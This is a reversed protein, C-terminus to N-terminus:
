EQDWISRWVHHTTPGSGGCDKGAAKAETEAFVHYRHENSRRAPTRYVIYTQGSAGEFTKIELGAGQKKGKLKKV